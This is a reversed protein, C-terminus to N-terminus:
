RAHELKRLRAALVSEENIQLALAGAVHQNVSVEFEHPAQPTALGRGSLFGSVARGTQSGIQAPTSYLALLAGARVYAPAFAVVPVRAQFTTRLINQVTRSNFVAGDPVALLVDADTLVRQLAGFLGSESALEGATVSFGHEAANSSISRGLSVSEPGLLVAIQRSAPLALRILTLQRTLPQDLWVASLVRKSASTNKAITQFATRPLLACLVPTSGGGAAVARCAQAGVAVTIRPRLSSLADTETFHLQTIDVAPLEGRVAAAVEGYAGGRESLVVAISDAASATSVAFLWLLIGACIRRAPAFVAVFEFDPFCLSTFHRLWAGARFHWCVACARQPRWFLRAQLAM